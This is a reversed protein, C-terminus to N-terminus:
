REEESPAEGDKNEKEGSAEEDPPGEKEREAAAETEASDEGSEKKEPAFAMVAAAVPLLVLATVAWANGTLFSALVDRWLDLDLFLFLGVALAAVSAALVAGAAMDKVKRIDADRERTVRDCLTELASNLCELGIVVASTLLVAIYYWKGHGSTWVLLLAWAAAVLEVRLNRGKAVADCFGRGADRFAKFFKKIGM